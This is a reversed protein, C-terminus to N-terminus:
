SRSGSSGIVIAWELTYEILDPLHLEARALGEAYEPEDL